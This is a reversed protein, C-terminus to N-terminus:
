EALRRREGEIEASVGYRFSDFTNTGIQCGYGTLRCVLVDSMTITLTCGMWAPYEVHLPVEVILHVRRQSPDSLDWVLESVVSDHLYDLLSLDNLLVQM